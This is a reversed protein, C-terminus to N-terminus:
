VIKKLKEILKKKELDGPHGFGEKILQPKPMQFPLVNQPQCPDFYEPLERNEKSVKSTMTTRVSKCFAEFLDPDIKKGVTKAMVNLADETNLVEHYSRKTTIADFFDAIAVIRAFLHIDNGELKSPYGTGNYNEHHEFVVRKLINLDFESCTTCNNETLLDYGYKPHNKIMRFEDDDLKDPKNIIHTNIKVKGIDHLMGGLGVLIIEEQPANPKIAKYLAICYMSVNISHDYTYFDHFSLSSILSKIDSINKDKIVELMGAVAQKCDQVAESLLETTFEKDKDFIKDLYVIATSKVVDTKTISDISKSKVVGSLYAFRQSEHVYLQFYKQKFEGLEHMNLTDGMPFVRVFKERNESTSSNVYLDYTIPDDVIVLDFSVSFFNNAFKSM